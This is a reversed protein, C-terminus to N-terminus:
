KGGKEDVGKVRMRIAYLGKSATIFLTRRDRGGFCVNASWAEPVDIREIRKGAKDFVTVGKGTLYLNGESDITMGDSGMECFLRKNTLSADPRIDYAYTRQAKLDSVYLTKGDPTGTIGNPTELDDIVRMLRRPTGPQDEKREPALFYVAEVEQEQPGRKWWDRKYWPDTFYVGADPRVWVDNPANLLKGKYEKVLVTVKKHDPTILWLENEEDACSYLNGKRDFMMGNSRNSPKMFVSLKGSVSWKMIRDNPQDTFYVNGEPDCTAGETFEFEGALKEVKAGPATVSTIEVPAPKSALSLLLVIVMRLQNM